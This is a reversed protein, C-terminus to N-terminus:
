GRLARCAALITGRLRAAQGARPIGALRLFYHALSLLGYARWHPEDIQFEQRYRQILPDEGPGVDTVGLIAEAFPQKHLLVRDFARYLILDMAPLGAEECLDWDVLGRVGGAGGGVLNTVKFDGHTTVLDTPTHLFGAELVSLAGDLQAAVEADSGERLAMLPGRILARFRDADLPERRRTRTHLETLMRGAEGALEGLRGGSLRLYPIERGRIRTEVLFAHGEVSGEMVPRPTAFSLSLQALRGLSAFGNRCRRLAGEGRPLRVVFDRTQIRFAHGSGFHLTATESPDGRPLQRLIADRLTEHPAGAVLALRAGRLLVGAAPKLDRLVAHRRLVGTARYSRGEAEFRRLLRRPRVGRRWLGLVTRLLPLSPPSSQGPRGVLGASHGDLHLVGDPRLVRVLERLLLSRDGWASGASGHGTVAAHLAVVDFVHDAFPLRVKGSPTVVTFDRVGRAAALGAVVGAHARDPHLCYVHRAGHAAAALSAGGLGDDISLVTRHALPPVFYM